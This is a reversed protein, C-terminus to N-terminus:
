LSSHFWASERWPRCDLEFTWCNRPQQHLFWYMDAMAEPKVLGDIPDFEKKLANFYAPLVKGLTDPADVPGDVITHCVHINSTSLEHSLSSAIARRGHMAAAHALQGQNGRVSATAGTFILTGQQRKQMFPVISKAFLFAGKVGLNLALSLTKSETQNLLKSGMNAGLNYIAVNIPGISGEIEHVTAELTGEKTADLIYGHAQGGADNIENLLIELKEKDSRRVLCVTFGEKSFKKAVGRGIGSGAGVVLCVPTGM